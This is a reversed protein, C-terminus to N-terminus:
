IRRSASEAVSIVHSEFTLKSDLILGLSSMQDVMTVLCGNIFFFSPSPRYLLELDLSSWVM